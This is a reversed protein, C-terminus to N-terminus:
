RSALKHQRQREYIKAYKFFSNLCGILIHIFGPWGDLFGLRIFYFKFFRVLPSFVMSFVVSRKSRCDWRLAQLTTYRNQKQLYHHLSDASDHVLDGTLNGVTGSVMVKEHVPDDSWRGHRRDFLRLSWDPYGEGHRLYRGLFFNCRPFRYAHIGPQGCHRQIALSLQESVREDADICLVWDHLAHEVAWQKQAGFGLWEQQLVRAGYSRAVAVTADTSGSDVVLIEACFALSALCDELRQEENLAIIVASVPVLSM